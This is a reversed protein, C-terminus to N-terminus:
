PGGLVTRVRAGDAPARGLEGAIRVIRAVRDANDRFLTGDPAWLSNEFGVRVHGGLAMAATAGATEGRGFACIMWDIPPLDGAEDLVALFPRLMHADSEQNASYRGLVFLVSLRMGPIVGRRVLALLHRLDAEDYVIHQVAVAERRCWAYFAAAESEAAAEPVMERVAVSVAPPRVACVVAMQEGASYRGVAETTIQSVFGDPVRPAIMDLLARYAEADLLHRGERDRVHLHAAGAGAQACAAVVDAIEDLTLPIAPHDAKTRRAGNPAVMITLPDSM